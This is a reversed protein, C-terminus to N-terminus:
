KVVSFVFSVKERTGDKAALAGKVVYSGEAVSVGKKDKLNWSAIEGSGAKASLKTVANGNADFIYLSGSKVQKASFFKIVGNKSVPSPGATFSAAAVKVPAVTVVAAKPATPIKTNGAAIGVGIEYVGLALSAASFFNDGGIIDVTVNYKGAVSPIATLGNYKVTIVSDPVGTGKKLTVSGIGLPATQGIKHGVPISYNLWSTDIVAKTITYNGLVLGNAANFNSGGAVDVTLAYLGANVPVTAAGAYKVAVAGLTADTATTDKSKVNAGNAAATYANSADWTFDALTPTKKNIVFAKSATADEYADLGSAVVTATGANKNNTYKLEYDRNAVLIAGPVVVDNVTTSPMQVRVKSVDLKIESGTYTFGPALYASDITFTAAAMSVPPVLVTVRAKRPAYASAQYGDYTNTVKVGFFLVSGVSDTATYNFTEGGGILQGTTDNATASAYKFWQYSLTGNNGAPVAAGVKVGVTKGFRVTTDRPSNSAFIPKAEPNITLKGLNYGLPENSSSNPTINMNAITGTIYANVDYVGAAKPQVTDKLASGGNFYIIRYAGDGGLSLGSLLEPTPNVTQVQDNFYRVIPFASVDFVKNVGNEKPNLRTVNVGTGSAGTSTVTVSAAGGALQYNSMIESGEVLSVTATIKRNQGVNANEISANTILYDEVNAAGADDATIGTLAIKVWPGDASGQVTDIFTTGDYVKSQNASGEGVKVIAPTLTKKAITFPVVVYGSYNGNGVVILDASGANVLNVEDASVGEPLDDVSKVREFDNLKTESAKETLLTSGERVTVKPIVESGTYILDAGSSALSASIGASDLPRPAITFKVDLEESTWSEVAVAPNGEKRSSKLVAKVSYEGVDVYGVKGLNTATLTFTAGKDAKTGTVKYSSGTVGEPTTLAGYVVTDLTGLSSPVKPAKFTFTGGRSYVIVNEEAEYDSETGKSNTVNLQNTLVYSAVARFNQGAEIRVRAYYLGGSGPITTVWGSTATKVKNFDLTATGLGTWEPTNTKLKVEFGEPLEAGAEIAGEGATAKLLKELSGEDEGNVAGVNTWTIITPTNTTTLNVRAIVFSDLLIGETAKFNPNADVEAVNAWVYYKSASLLSDIPKEVEEGDRGATFKLTIEGSQVGDTNTWSWSDGGNGTNASVTGYIPLGSYVNSPSTTGTPKTYTLHRKAVEAKQITVSGSIKDAHEGAGRVKVRFNASQSKLTVIVDASGAMYNTSNNPQITVKDIDGTPVIVAENSKLSITVASAPIAAPAKKDNFVPYADEDITIVANADDTKWESATGDWTHTFLNAKDITVNWDTGGTVPTSGTSAFNEATAPVTLFARYNGAAVAGGNVATTYSTGTKYSISVDGIDISVVGNGSNGNALTTLTPAIDLATGTYENTGPTFTFWTKVNADTLVLKAIKFTRYLEGTFLTDGSQSKFGGSLNAGSGTVKALKLEMEGETEGAKVNDGWIIQAVDEVPATGNDLLASEGLSWALNTNTTSSNGKRLEWRPKKQANAFITDKLTSVAGGGVVLVLNYGTSIDEVYQKTTVKIVESFKKTSPVSGTAASSTRVASCRFYKVAPAAEAKPTFANTGSNTGDTTETVDNWTADGPSSPNYDTSKQWKLTPSGAPSTVRIAGNKKVYVETDPRAVAAFDPVIPRVSVAIVGLSANWSTDTGNRAFGRVVLYKKGVTAVSAPVTFVGNATVAANTITTSIATRGSTGNTDTATYWRYGIAEAAESPQANGAPTLVLTANSDITVSGTTGSLGPNSTVLITGTPVAPTAAFALGWVGAIGMLVAAKWMSKLLTM